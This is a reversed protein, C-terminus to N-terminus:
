ADLWLQGEPLVVSASQRRQPHDCPGLCNPCLRWRPLSAHPGNANAEVQARRDADATPLREPQLHPTDGRKNREAPHRLQTMSFAKTWASM